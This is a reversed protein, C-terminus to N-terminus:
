GPAAAGIRHRNLGRWWALLMVLAAFTALWVFRSQYRHYVGSLAGALVANAVLGTLIAAYLGGLTERRSLAVACGLALVALAVSGVGLHVAQLTDPLLHILRFQKSAEYRAAEAPPFVERWSQRIDPMPVILWEGSRFSVFQRAANRLSNVLMAEPEAKLAALVIPWVQPAVVQYGGARNLLADDGFQIAEVTPPLNDKFACLSWDPRPCERQLARQGPGDLLVRTLIFIKGYPSPSVRGALVANAGTAACLALVPVLLGRLVTGAGVRGETWWRAVLLMVLVALSIPLFTLHMTICGAAFLLLLLQGFAGLRSPALILLGLALVMLSGFLDPMLQSVFWPLSTCLALVAAVLPLVWLTLGPLLCRIVMAMLGATILGQAAIVPWATLRLHFARMFLGYFLPRPWSVHLNIGDTLYVGTDGFMLPYGNLVAPWLLLAAAIPIALLALRGGGRSM